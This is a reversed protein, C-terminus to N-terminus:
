SLKIKYKKFILRAMMFDDITDIDISYKELIEVIDIPNAYIRKQRKIDKVRMCWIGGNPIFYKKLNQFHQEHSLIKSKLVPELKNKNYEWMLRPHEKVKRASFVCSLNKSILKKLCDNIHRVRLFPTTPQILAVIDFKKQLKKETKKLADLIIDLDDAYDRALVKPRWFIRKIGAKEGIRAIEKNETSIVSNDFKSKLVAKAVWYVLSYKGIKKLNKKPIRKSGGRAVIVALTNM